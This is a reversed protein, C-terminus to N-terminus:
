PFRAGATLFAHGLNLWGLCGLKRPSPTATNLRYKSEIHWICRCESVVTVNKKRPALEGFPPTLGRFRYLAAFPRTNQVGELKTPADAIPEAVDECELSGSFDSGCLQATVAPRARFRRAGCIESVEEHSLDLWEARRALGFQDAFRWCIGSGAHM